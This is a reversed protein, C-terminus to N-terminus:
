RWNHHRHWVPWHPRFHPRHFYGGHYAHVGPGGRYFPEASATLTGMALAAATALGAILTIRKM